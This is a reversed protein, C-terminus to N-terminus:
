SLRLYNWLRAKEVMSLLHYAHSRLCYFNAYLSNLGLFGLHQEITPMLCCHAGTLQHMHWCLKAITGHLTTPAHM